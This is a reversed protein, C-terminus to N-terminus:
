SAAGTSGLLFSHSSEKQDLRMELCADAIVPMTCRCERRRRRSIRHKHRVLTGFRTSAFSPSSRRRSYFSSGIDGTLGEKDYDAVSTVACSLVSWEVLSSRSRKRLVARGIWLRPRRAGPHIVVSVVVVVVVEDRSVVVVHVFGADKLGDQVHGLRAHSRTRLLISPRATSLDHTALLSTFLSTVYSALTQVRDRKNDSTCTAHFRESEIVEKTNYKTM